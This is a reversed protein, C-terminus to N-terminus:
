NKDASSPLVSHAGATKFAAVSMCFSSGAKGGTLTPQYTGPPGDAVYAYSPKYTWTAPTIGSSPSAGSFYGAVILDTATTKIAPGVESGASTATGNSVQAGNGDLLSTSAMGSVELFSNISARVHGSLHFKLETVGPNCKECYWIDLPGSDGCSSLAGPVQKYTNGGDPANDTVSVVKVGPTLLLPMAILVDGKGTPDIDMDSTTGSGASLAAFQQIITQASLDVSGWLLLVILIKEKM